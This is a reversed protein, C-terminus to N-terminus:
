PSCVRRYEASLKATHQDMQELDDLSYYPRNVLMNRMRHLSQIEGQLYSCNENRQQQLQQQQQQSAASQQSRRQDALQRVAQADRAARERAAQQAESTPAPAAQLAKIPQTGEPCDANSYTIKGGPGECRQIQQALGSGSLAFGLPLALLAMSRNMAALRAL